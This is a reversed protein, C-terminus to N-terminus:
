AEIMEATAQEPVSRRNGSRMAYIYWLLMAPGTWVYWASTLLNFSFLEILMGANILILVAIPMRRHMNAYVAGLLAPMMLTLDTLWAYPACLVSIMMVVSGHELWDWREGKRLFYVTAWLCGAAEPIFEIWRASEHVLFRLTMGPTPLYADMIHLTSTMAKYQAWAQADLALSLVCSFGLAASAGALVLPKRRTISWALLVLGFVVFLHPKLAYPMLVAGAWFPHREHLLLFLAFSLLFFTGLQGAMLCALAPSFAIGFLHILSNPRGFLHWLLLTSALLCSLEITQWAILGTRAAVFGLPYAFELAVPPSFSIRPQTGTLGEARELRYIESISYPNAHHVLQQGAAWYEIYDREAVGRPTLSFSYLSIIFAFGSAIIAGAAVKRWPSSPPSNRSSTPPKRSPMKPM